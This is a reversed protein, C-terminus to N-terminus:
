GAPYSGVASTTVRVARWVGGPALGFLPVMVHSADNGPLDSSRPPLTAGLYIVTRSLVRSIPGSGGKGRGLRNGYTDIGQPKFRVLRRLM